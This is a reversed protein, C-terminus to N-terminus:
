LKPGQIQVTTWRCKTRCHVIHLNTSSRISYDHLTDNVVFKFSSHQPLLSNACKYMLIALQYKLIDYVTMLALQKFLPQSHALFTSFTIIRCFRKQILFFIGPKRKQAPQGLSSQLLQHVTWGHDLTRHVMCTLSTPLLFRVKAIIGISNSIKNAIINVHKNWSLDSLIIVGLFKTENLRVLATDGCLINANINRRKGFIIYNTKSIKLSLLNVKKKYVYKHIVYLIFYWLISEM